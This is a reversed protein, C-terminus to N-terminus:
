DGPERPVFLMLTSKGDETGTIALNGALFSFKVTSGLQRLYRAELDMIENPCAMRTSVAAGLKLDGPMGGPTVGASYRNCGSSGSVSENEFTLSIEPKVPAPESWGLHTLVWRRDALDELSLTGNIESAVKSLGDAGLTWVHRAKQSPCCAADDPGRQVVNLEIRGDAIGATQVQTRDGILATGLNVLEGDRTGVAAVFTHSGSGGSTEWVLVVSEANGDGDLDGTLRFNRVLGAAPRAAGGPEFPEGQWLGGNFQVPDDFVGHYTINGLAEITPPGVSRAEIAEAPGSERPGCASLAILTLLAFLGNRLATQEM